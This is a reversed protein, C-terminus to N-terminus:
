KYYLINGSINGVVIGYTNVAVDIVQGLQVEQRNGEIVHGEETVIICQFQSESSLIFMIKGMLFNAILLRENNMSVFQSVNIEMCFVENDGFFKYVKLSKDLKNFVAIRNSFGEDIDTQFQFGSGIRVTTSTSLDDILFVNLFSGSLCLLKSNMLLVGGNRSDHEITTWYRINEISPNDTDLTWIQTIRHKIRETFKDHIVLHVALKNRGIAISLAGSHDNEDTFERIKGLYNLDSVKQVTKHNWVMIRTNDADYDYDYYAIVLTQDQVVADYFEDLYSSNEELLYNGQSLDYMLINEGIGYNSTFLFLKNKSLLYHNLYSSGDCPTVEQCFLSENGIFKFLSSTNLEVCKCHEIDHEGFNWGCKELKEKVDADCNSARLSTFKHVVRRWLLCVNSAVVLSDGDLNSFIENLVESPLDGIVKMIIIIATLDKVLILFIV